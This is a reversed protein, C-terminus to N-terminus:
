EKYIESIEKAYISYISKRKMSMKATLEGGDISFEKPLLKFKKIQEVHGFDQNLRNIERNIKDNFEKSEIIEANTKLPLGKKNAWETAAYFSPVILASAYKQNDGIVIIQEIYKSEKMKNEIPQPAIFKGGSTKLLEKKRDTIKLYTGNVIEGIDGTHFWGDKIVESTLDPRNYYGKMVNPGKCLIEGDEAIKIEVKEITKGVTGFYAGNPLLTNVSIVPSTETLGYGELVPLNAAWFVRALRPQLPAGGSVITKINGGLAEHWKSFILKRAIKLQFNYWAGNANNHEYKFGLQLAWFFL